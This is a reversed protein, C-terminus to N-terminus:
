DCGNRMGAHELRRIPNQVFTIRNQGSSAYVVCRSEFKLRKAHFALPLKKKLCPRFIQKNCVQSIAAVVVLVTVRLKTVFVM